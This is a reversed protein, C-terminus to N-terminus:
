PKEGVSAPSSTELWVDELRWGGWRPATWNRVRPGLGYTEPLYALPIVRFGEVIAREAAYLQEPGSAEPREGPPLADALGLAAALAALAARPESPVLHVRVLRADHTGAASAAQASVQAAIGVERANVAVREAVVRAEADAADYVLVLPLAASLEARLARARALNSSTAFLFAYGSLWQPLLCGAAEGQRHLLVNVISTRDISLALAERLRADRAAPRDRNFELALLEVPASASARAGSQTARRVQEPALEVLDGKGLELDVLQERRARGMDIEVADLFPRGAWYDENAAVVLRVGPQWAAVRFPGTGSLSGDAAVHFVFYRGRSLEELLGPMPIDSEIELWEGAARIRRESGFFDQWAASIAMATLPSAEHFKVGPRLRFQWRKFEADHQWALALVPQPRADGGVSVLREYVLSALPEAAAAGPADATMRRPDLSAVRERMEVRLSGGYHPHTAAVSPLAVALFSAAAFFPFRTRRM